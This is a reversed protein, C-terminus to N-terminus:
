EGRIFKLAAEKRHTLIPTQIDAGNFPAPRETVLGCIRDNQDFKMAIKRNRWRAVVNTADEQLIEWLNATLVEQIEARTTSMPMRQESPERSDVRYVALRDLKEQRKRHHSERKRELMEEPTPSRRKPVAHWYSCVQCHEVDAWKGTEELYQLVAAESPFKERKDHTRQASREKLVDRCPDCIPTKNPGTHHANYGSRTGHLTASVKPAPPKARSKRPRAPAAPRKDTYKVSRHVSRPMVVKRATKEEPPEPREWELADLIKQVREEEVGALRAAEEESAGNNIAELVTSRIQEAKTM